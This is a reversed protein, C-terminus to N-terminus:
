TTSRTARSRGASTAWRRRTRAWRRTRRDVRAAVGLRHARHDAADGGPQSGPRRRQDSRHAGRADARQHDHPRQPRQRERRHGPQDGGPAPRADRGRRDVQHRHVHRPQREAGPRLRRAHVPHQLPRGDPPRRRGAAARVAHRGRAAPHRRPDRAGPQERRHLRRGRHARQSGAGPGGAAAQGRLVAAGDIRQRAPQDGPGQDQLGAPLAGLGAPGRRRARLRRRRQRTMDLDFALDDVEFSGPSRYALREGHLPLDFEGPQFPVLSTFEVRGARVGSAGIVLVGQDDLVVRVNHLIAGDNRSSSSAARCRCRRAWTACGFTSRASISGGACRPSRCRGACGRACTRRGQADTVAEPAVFALLRASVDGDVDAQINEPAFGPGLTAHGALKMTSGDVTVALDQVGVGGQDLAFRGSGIVVDRDFDKPRLRVPNAITMEGRVDPKDLTGRAQLEVRLSAPAATRLPSAAGMFPQLLELDLHGSLNGSIRRTTWGAPSSRSRRRRDQLAGRGAGDRRRQRQRAAPAGGRRARAPRHDRREHGRRRPRGVAVARAAAPGPVAPAVPRHRRTVRGSVIGRADGFSVLEPALAEIEVHRFDIEAHM